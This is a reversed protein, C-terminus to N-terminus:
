TLLLPSAGELMNASLISRSIAKDLEKRYSSKIESNLISLETRDGNIVVDQIVDAYENLLSIIVVYVNEQKFSENHAVIDNLLYQRTEDPNPNTYMFDDFYMRRVSENLERAVLAPAPANDSLLKKGFRILDAPCKPASESKCYNVVLPMFTNDDIDSKIIEYWVPMEESTLEFGKYCKELINLGNTFTNFDLM